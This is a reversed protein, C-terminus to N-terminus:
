SIDNAATWRVDVSGLAGSVDVTLRHDASDWDASYYADGRRTMGDADFAMLFTDRSIRVGIGRPIRLTLSGVGMDITVSMNRRWEGAFDLDLEGVGGDLDLTAANANGLGEARFSAAGAEIKLVDLPEPNPRSFRLRTDSAGTSIDVNRLRLGGLEITAEVAGFNLDLDLPVGSGLALDLRGGERMGTRIREHLREVGVRLMGDSYEQVPEFARADFRLSSSYLMGADAPEILLEGAGYEVLVDLRDEGAVARQSSVTRWDQASAPTGATVAALLLAAAVGKFM